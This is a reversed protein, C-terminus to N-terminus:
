AVAKTTTDSSSSSIRNTVEFLMDAILRHGKANWHDDVPRYDKISLRDRASVFRVGLGECIRSLERDPLDPEIEDARPSNKELIRLAKASMSRPTPIGLVVLTAGAEECVQRGQTILYECASFARKSRGGPIHLSALEGFWNSSERGASAYWRDSSMHRTVIEWGEPSDVERVFPTRYKSMEPQLNDYLDNGYYIFWVVVKGSLQGAFQRMLMLEQVCNYGPAGIAKVSLDRRIHAFSDKSNVGFGFAMSDGFVITDSEAVTARGPWGSADTVVHFVEPDRVSLYHLDLDSKPIWGITADYKVLQNWPHSEPEILGAIWETLKSVAWFPACVLLLPLAFLTALITAGLATLTRLMKM